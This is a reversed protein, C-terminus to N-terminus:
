KVGVRRTCFPPFPGCNLIPLEMEAALRASRQELEVLRPGSRGLPSSPSAAAGPGAGLSGLGGAADAMRAEGARGESTAGRPAPRPHPCEGAGPEPQSAFPESLTTCSFGLLTEARAVSGPRARAGRPGAARARAEGDGGRRAGGWLPAERTGM